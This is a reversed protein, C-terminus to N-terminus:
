PSALRRAATIRAAAVLAPCQGTAGRQDAPGARTARPCPVGARRDTTARTPIQTMFEGGANNCDFNPLMMQRARQEGSLAAPPLYANGRNSQPATATCRRADGRGEPRVPAPLPRAREPTVTPSRTSSRAPATPSSTARDHAPPVRAVRPDPQAARPVAAARRAAAPRRQADDRLAPLGKKSVTILPDLNRFFRELDPACRACTACRRSAPRPAVPGCTRSSRTPTKRRFTELRESRRRRSTSSPRSSRSRRPWRRRASALDGRLRRDSNTILNRLQAENQTLADFVDGTNRFLRRVAEDQRTSSRSCTPRTPPSPRCTASPTTSTAAAARRDGAGPGAALDPVSARTQPDLAQFIEDLQSPTPSARTPSGGTRPSRRRGEPRRADARRLDRGAADEPAPDGERGQQMPAFRSDLEIRRSRATPTRRTSAGERAGQRRDRGAVRVDAELGLQTAEPFAVKVRYGKPKLPTPGGFSLWLFLLLGFCSLAFLVMTLLRGFTPAQKQMLADGESPEASPRTWSRGACFIMGLQPTRRASSSSRRHVARRADGPPVRRQRRRHAFLAGGNHQLWAIWFLFGEDRGAVEPGERGNPNYGVLNFLSTSSRSAARSTRRRTRRPEGVGPAPRARGAAGRAVFPRIQDRVIPAGGQRAAHDRPQRRRARPAAPRLAEATPGSCRPSADRGQGAHETTQQLASPCSACPRASTRSRPPSRASSRRRATSSSRSSTARARRARENLM